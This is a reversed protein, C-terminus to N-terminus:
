IVSLQASGNVASTSVHVHSQHTQVGFFLCGAKCESDATPVVPAAECVRVEARIPGGSLCYQGWRKTRVSTLWSLLAWTAMSVNLSSGTSCVEMMM